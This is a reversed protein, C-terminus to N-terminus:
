RSSGLSRFKRAMGIFRHQVLSQPWNNVANEADQGSYVGFVQRGLKSGAIKQGAIVSSDGGKHRAPTSAM